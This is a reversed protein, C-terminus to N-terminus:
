RPSPCFLLTSVKFQQNGEWEIQHIIPRPWIKIEIYVQGDKLRMSPEVRDYEESLAKLDSDFTQQSFLDGRQTKMRSLIPAPDISHEGRCEVTIEIQGVRKEDYFEASWLPSVVPAALTAFLIFFFFWHM